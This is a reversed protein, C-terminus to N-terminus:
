LEPLNKIFIRHNVLEKLIKNNYIEYLTDILQHSKELIMGMLETPTYGYRPDNNIQTEITNKLSAVRVMFFEDMNSVFIACFKARELVPNSLDTAENLVRENFLLWSYDRPIYKERDSNTRKM